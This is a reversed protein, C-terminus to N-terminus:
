LVRCGLGVPFSRLAFPFAADALKGLSNFPQLTRKFYKTGGRGLQVIELKVFFMSM